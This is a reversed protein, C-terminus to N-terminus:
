QEFQSIMREFHYDFLRKDEASKVWLTQCLRKLAARDRVGFGGQLAQLVLRYEDTGLPLGAERLETFLDLLPLEEVSM